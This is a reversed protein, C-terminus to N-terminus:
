SSLVDAGVLRSGRMAEALKSDEDVAFVIYHKRNIVVLFDDDGFISITHDPLGPLDSLRPCHGVHDGGWTCQTSFFAFMCRIGMAACHDPITAPFHTPRTIDSRPRKRELEEILIRLQEWSFVSIKAINRPESLKIVNEMAVELLQDEPVAEAATNLSSQPGVVLLPYHLRPGGPNDLLVMQGNWIFYNEPNTSPPAQFRSAGFSKTITNFTVGSLQVGNETLLQYTGHADIMRGDFVLSLRKEPPTKYTFIQCCRKNRFECVWLEDTNLHRHDFTALFFVDNDTPHFIVELNNIEVVPLPRKLIYNRQAPGRHVDRPMTTDVDELGHGFSWLLLEGSQSVVLVSNHRTFCRVPVNQLSVRDVTRSSLDWAYRTASNTHGDLRGRTKFCVLNEGGDCPSGRSSEWPGLAEVQDGQDAYFATVAGVV